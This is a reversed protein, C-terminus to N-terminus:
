LIDFSYNACIQAPTDKGLQSRRVGVEMLHGLHGTHLHHNNLVNMCSLLFHLEMRFNLDVRGDLDCINIKVGFDNPGM